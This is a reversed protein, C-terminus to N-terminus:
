IVKLDLLSCSVNAKFIASGVALAQNM